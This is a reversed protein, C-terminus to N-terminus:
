LGPPEEQSEESTLAEFGSIVDLLEETITSQRLSHYRTSLEDEMEEINKEARQMAALRAANEAAMSAAFARFLSVFLYEGILASFLEEWPLTYIPLGRGPWRRHGLKELWRQDPPLLHIMSQRYSAGKLPVNYFLVLRTEDQQRRRQEFRLVVEQVAATIHAVSSPLGFFQDISGFREEVGGAAKGGVVWYSHTDALVQGEKVAREALDIIAENFRGAMGQDSGFVLVVAEGPEKARPLLPRQLLTARLGLKVAHDYDSLSRVAEEYQRIEVAALSKMTRVVSHLDSASKIKRKLEQLTEM